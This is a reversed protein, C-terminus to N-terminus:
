LWIYIHYYVFLVKQICLFFCFPTAIYFVLPIMAVNERELIYVQCFLATTYHQLHLHNANAISFFSNCLRFLAQYLHYVCFYVLTLYQSM